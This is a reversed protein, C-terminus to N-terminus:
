SGVGYRDLNLTIRCKGCQCFRRESGDVMQELKLYCQYTQLTIAKCHLDCECGKPMNSKQSKRSVATTAIHHTKRIARAVNFMKYNLFVSRSHTIGFVQLIVELPYFISRFIDSM